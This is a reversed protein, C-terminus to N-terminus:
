TCREGLPIAARRPTLEDDVWVRIRVCRPVTALVFGSWFTAQHGDYSSGSRAATCARFAVAQHGDGVSREGDPMSWNDDAYLLSTSRRIDRPLEVTVRHGARVIAPYKNGGFQAVTGPSTYRRAGALM